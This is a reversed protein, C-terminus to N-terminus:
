SQHSGVASVPVKGGTAASAANIRAGGARRQEYFRRVHAGEPWLEPTYMEGVEICEASVKFSAFRSHETVFKQCTVERGLKEKLYTTLTEPDLDPAFRTAFVSVLKTKVTKIDTVAGTGVVPVANGHRKKRGIAAASSGSRAAAYRPEQARRGERVVKTWEPSRSVSALGGPDRILAPGEADVARRGPTAGVGMQANAKAAKAGASLGLAGQTSSAPEPAVGALDAAVVAVGANPKVSGGGVALDVPSELAGVRRNVDMTVSRLEESIDAQLQMTKKLYCLEAHMREMRGLLSSVDMSSFSVPPLEDLYHSVFRPINEGCENLVKLCSKINNADKQQGKHAVNRQSTSCLEFLVKKSSEIWETDFKNAALLVIEDQSLTKIKVALFNLLEDEVIVKGDVTKYIDPQLRSRGLM